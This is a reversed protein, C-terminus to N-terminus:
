AVVSDFIQALIGAQKQRSYKAIVERISRCQVTGTTKWEQHWKTLVSAIEAPKGLSIGAQTERLLEDVVSNDGPVNLIPRAAALYDFAKSGITGLPETSKLLLLISCRRQMRVMEAHGVRPFWQVYDRCCFDKLLLQIDRQLPGVFRVSIDDLVGNRNMSMLDLAKFLPRPDRYPSLIGFFGIVFKEADVTVDGVYDEPDYGNYILHVPVKHREKLIKVHIPTDGILASATACIKIEAQVIRRVTWSTKPYQDALDRFEAVWPISYKQSIKSAVYHVLVPPATTWIADFKKTSALREASELMRKCFDIRQRDPYVFQELRHKEHLIRRGIRTSIRRDGVNRNFSIRVVECFDGKSALLPDYALMSNEPTCDVCLVTPTWGYNPLYKAMKAMRHAGPNTAPYFSRGILLVQKSM